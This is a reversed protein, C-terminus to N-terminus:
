HEEIYELTLTKDEKLSKLYGENRNINQNIKEIDPNKDIFELIEMMGFDSNKDYLNKYVSQIFEFDEPNDLTWRKPSLDRNYELNVRKFAHNKRIYPTM